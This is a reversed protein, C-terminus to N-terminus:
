SQIRVHTGHRCVQSEVVHKRQKQRIQTVENDKAGPLTKFPAAFKYLKM